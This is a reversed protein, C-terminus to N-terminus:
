HFALSVVLRIHILLVLSIGSHIRVITLLSKRISLLWLSSQYHIINQWSLGLLVTPVNRLNQWVTCCPNGFKVTSMVCVFSWLNVSDCPPMYDTNWLLYMVFDRRVTCLKNLSVIVNLGYNWIFNHLTFSLFYMKFVFCCTVCLKWCSIKLPHCQMESLKKFTLITMQCHLCDRLNAYSLCSIYM